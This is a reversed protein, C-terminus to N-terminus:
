ALSECAPRSPRPLTVYSTASGAGDPSLFLTKACRKMGQLITSTSRPIDLVLAEVKGTTADMRPVGKAVIIEQELSSLTESAPSSGHIGTGSASGWLSDDSIGAFGVICNKLEKVTVCEYFQTAPIDLDLEERFSGLIALSMLSDVGLDALATSDTLQAIEVGIEDALIKLAGLVLGSAVSIQPKASGPAPLPAATGSMNSPLAPPRVPISQRTPEPSAEAKPGNVLNPAKAKVKAIPSSGLLVQLVKRSVKKFTVGGCIAIVKGGRLVHVDGTYESDDSGVARM